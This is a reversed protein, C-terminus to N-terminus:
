KHKNCIFEFKMDLIILIAWLVQCRKEANIIRLLPLPPYASATLETSISKPLSCPCHFSPLFTLILNNRKRSPLSISAPVAKTATYYFIIFADM